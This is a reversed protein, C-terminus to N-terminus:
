LDAKSQEDKWRSVKTKKLRIHFVSYLMLGVFFPYIIATWSRSFFVSLTLFIFVGYLDIRRQYVILFTAALFLWVTAALGFIGFYEIVSFLNHTYEGLPAQCGFILCEISSNSRDLAEQLLTSRERLSSDQGSMIAIVTQLRQMTPSEADLLLNFALTGSLVLGAIVGIANLASFRFYMITFSACLYFVLASRSGLFVILMAVITAVLAFDKKAIGPRSLYSIGFLAALDSTTLYSFGFLERRDIIQITDLTTNLIMITPITLLLFLRQALLHYEEYRHFQKRKNSLLAIIWASGVLGTLLQPFYELSVNHSTRTAFSLLFVLALPFYYAASLLFNCLSIYFVGFLSLLAWALAPLAVSLHLVDNLYYAIFLYMFFSATYTAADGKKKNPKAM